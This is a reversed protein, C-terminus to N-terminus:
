LAQATETPTSYYQRARAVIEDAHEPLNNRLWFITGEAKPTEASYPRNNAQILEKLGDVKSGLVENMARNLADELNGTTGGPLLHTHTRLLADVAASRFGPSLVDIPYACFLKFSSSNRLENWYHELRIAASYLGAEWLVGVMEGYARLRGSASSAKAEHVITGVTSQFLAWDPQGDRMFGALTEHVDLLLLQRAEIAQGPDSGLEALKEILAQNREQSAIVILGEGRSLGEALYRGVNHVLASDDTDHFQLLHRDPEGHESIENWPEM